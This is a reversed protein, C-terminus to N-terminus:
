NVFVLQSNVTIFIEFNSSLEEPKLESTPNMWSLQIQDPEMGQELLFAEVKEGFAEMEIPNIEPSQVLTIALKETSQTLGHLHVLSKLQKRFGDLSQASTKELYFIEKGFVAPKPYTEKELEEGNEGLLIVNAAGAAYNPITNELSSYGNKAKPNEYTWVKQDIVIKQSANIGTPKIGKVFDSAELGELGKLFIEEEGSDNKKGTIVIQRERGLHKWTVKYGNNSVDLDVNRLDSSKLITVENTALNEIHIDSITYNNILKTPISFFGKSAKLNLFYLDTKGKGGVRDSIFFSETDSFKAFGFDDYRSNVPAGMNEPQTWYEDFPYSKFVDLGGLGAHGESAFFLVGGKGVYPYGENAETNIVPGLNKPELWKGESSLQSVYIDTGGYGGPKDSVFFLKDGSPSFVPHSVSYDKSNFQFPTPEEWKGSKDSTFFIELIGNYVRPSDKVYSASSFALTKLAECYSAPGENLQNNIHFPLFKIKELQMEESLEAEYFDMYVDPTGMFSNAGYSDTMCFIVKNKYKTIGLISESDNVRLGYTLPNKANLSLGEYYYSSLSHNRARIDLPHIESYKGFWVVAEQYNGLKKLCQAYELYDLPLAQSSKAALELYEEANNLDAEHLYAQGLSRLVHNSTDHELALSYHRIAKRYNLEFFSKDAKNQHKLFSQASIPNLMAVCACVLFLRLYKM